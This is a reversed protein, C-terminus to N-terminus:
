PAEEAPGARWGSPVPSVPLEPSPHHGSDEACAQFPGDGGFLAARQPDFHERLWIAMGFAPDLRLVEWTRWLADLRLVAEPHAWWLACWQTAGLRRGFTPAFWGGVWAPLTPYRPRTPQEAASTSAPAQSKTIADLAIDHDDCTEEVRRLRGELEEAYPDSDHTHTM